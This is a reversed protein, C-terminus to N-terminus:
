KLWTDPAEAVKDRGRHSQKLRKKKRAVINLVIGFVLLLSNSTLLLFFVFIGWVEM